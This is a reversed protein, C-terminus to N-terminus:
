RSQPQRQEVSIFKPDVSVQIRTISWGLAQARQVLAYQHVQSERNSQVQKMTSQRIYICAKHELHRPTIKSDRRDLTNM